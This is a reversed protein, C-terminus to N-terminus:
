DMLSGAFNVKAELSQSRKSARQTLPYDRVSGKGKWDSNIVCEPIM